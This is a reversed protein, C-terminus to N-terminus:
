RGCDRPCTFRTEGIETECIEDGCWVEECYPICQNTNCIWHGSCDERPWELDSCERVTICSGFGECDEPCNISDEGKGFDCRGDGCIEGCTERCMREECMWHGSCRVSWVRNLCDDDERCQIANNGCDISCTDMWEGMNTQCTFDGCPPSACDAVCRGDECNWDGECDINWHFGNCNFDSPCVFAECADQTYTITCIRGDGFSTMTFRNSERDYVLSTSDDMHWSTSGGEIYTDTWTSVEGVKFATINYSCVAPNLSDVRIPDFQRLCGSSIRDACFTGVIRQDQCSPSEEVEPEPDLDIDGDPVLCNEKAYTSTCDGTLRGSCRLVFSAREADYSLSCEDYIPNEVRWQTTECGISSVTFVPDESNSGYGQVSFNCPIINSQSVEVTDVFRCSDITPDPSKCYRGPYDECGSCVVEEEAEPTVDLESDVDLELDGDASGCLEKLFLKSCDDGLSGGDCTIMFGGNDADYNLVCISLGVTVPWSTSDCGESNGTWVMEGTTDYLTLLFSCDLLSDAEVRLRDFQMCALNGGGGLDISCYDGAFNDCACVDSEESVDADIDVDVEVDGDPACYGQSYQRTCTGNFDASCSLEFAALDTLYVLQCVDDRIPVEWRNDECGNSITSFIRDGDPSYVSVEFVCDEASVASTEVYAANGCSPNIGEPEAGCYRGEYSECGVCPNTEPDSDIDGDTSGCAETSYTSLCTDGSSFCTISFKGVIYNYSLQCTTGPISWTANECGTVTFTYPLSTDSSSVSVSFECTDPNTSVVVINQYLGCQGEGALEQCYFGAFRDCNCQASDDESLDPLDLDNFDFEFDIDTEPIEIDGDVSECAEKSFSVSCSDIDSQCSVDFFGESISTVLSCSQGGYSFEQEFDACGNLEWSQVIEGTGDILDVVFSCVDDATQQVTVSQLAGCLGDMVGFASSCYTGALSDMCPCEEESDTETDGDSTSGCADKTYTADESQQMSPVIFEVDIVGDLGIDIHLYVEIGSFNYPVYYSYEGCSEMVHEDLLDGENRGYLRVIYGCEYDDAPTIEIFSDPVFSEILGPNNPDTVLCYTGPLNACDECEHEVFEDEFDQEEGDSVEEDGDAPSCANKTYTASFEVGNM